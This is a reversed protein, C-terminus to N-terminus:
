IKTLYYYINNNISNSNDPKSINILNQVFVYIRLLTIVPRDWEMKTFSKKTQKNVFAKGVNTFTQLCFSSPFINQFDREELAKLTISKTHIDFRLMKIPLEPILLRRYFSINKGDISKTIEQYFYVKSKIEVNKLITFMNWTCRAARKTGDAYRYTKVRM